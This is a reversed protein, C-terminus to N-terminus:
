GDDASEVGEVSEVPIIAKSSGEQKRQRDIEDAKRRAQGGERSRWGGDRSTMAREARMRGSKTVTRELREEDVM